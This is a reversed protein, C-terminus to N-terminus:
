LASELLALAGHIARDRVESRSASGTLGQTAPRPGDLALWVTGVPKAPSGGGPGAIGTVSLGWTTGLLKRVGSALGVAVEESVAGCRDILPEPIGLLDTKLVDAYAIVGGWFVASAGPVETISAGLGGGTCSEAVSVTEGLQTLRGVIHAALEAVSSPAM